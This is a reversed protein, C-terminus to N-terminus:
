WMWCARRFKREESCCLMRLEHVFTFFPSIEFVAEDGTEFVAGHDTDDFHDFVVNAYDPMSSPDWFIM